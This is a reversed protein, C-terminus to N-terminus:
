LRHGRHKEGLPGQYNEGEGYTALLKRAQEKTMGGMVGVLPDPMKLTDRAVQLQHWEPSFKEPLPKIEEPEPTADRVAYDEPGIDRGMGEDM